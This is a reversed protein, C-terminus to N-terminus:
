RAPDWAVITNDDLMARVHADLDARILYACRTFLVGLLDARERALRDPDGCLICPCAITGHRPPWHYGHVRRRFEDESEPQVGFGRVHLVADLEVDGIKTKSRLIM